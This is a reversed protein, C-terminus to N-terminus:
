TKKESEGYLLRDRAGADTDKEKPLGEFVKFFASVTEVAYNVMEKASKSRIAEAFGSEFASKMEGKTFILGKLSQKIKLSKIIAKSQPIKFDKLYKKIYLITTANLVGAKKPKRRRLEGKWLDAFKIMGPKWVYTAFENRTLFARRPPLEPRGSKKIGKTHIGLLQRFNRLKTYPYPLKPAGGPPFSVAFGLPKIDKEKIQEIGVSEDPVKGFHFGRVKWDDRVASKMALTNLLPHYKYKTKRERTSKRLGAWTGFGKSAFKQTIAPVLFRNLILETTHKKTIDDNLIRLERVLSPSIAFYPLAKKQGEIIVKEALRAKLSDGVLGLIKANLSGQLFKGSSDTYRLTCNFNKTNPM